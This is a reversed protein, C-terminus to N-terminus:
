ARHVPESALAAQMSKDWQAAARLFTNTAARDTAANDELAMKWSMQQSRTEVAFRKSAGSPQSLTFGHPFKTGQGDTLEVRAGPEVLLTGKAEWAGNVEKYYQLQGRRLVVYRERWGKIGFGRGGQEKLLLGECTVPADDRLPDPDGGSAEGGDGPPLKGSPSPLVPMHDHTREHQDNALSGWMHRGAKELADKWELADRHSACGLMMARGDAVVRMVHTCMYTKAMKLLEPAIATATPIIMVPGLRGGSLILSRKARRSLHDEYYSLTSNTLVFYRRTWSGWSPSGSAVQEAQTTASKVLWGEKRGETQELMSIALDAKEVSVYPRSTASSAAKERLTDAVNIDM